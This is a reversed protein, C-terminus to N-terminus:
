SEEEETYGLHNRPVFLNRLGTFFGKLRAIFAKVAIVPAVLSSTIRFVRAQAQTLFVMAQGFYKPTTGLLVLTGRILSYTIVGLVLFVVFAELSLLVISADRWFALNM